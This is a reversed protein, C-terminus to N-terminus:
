PSPSAGTMSSCGGRHRSVLLLGVCTKPAKPNTVGDSNGPPYGDYGDRTIRGSSNLISALRGFCSDDTVTVCGASASGPHLHMRSRTTTFQPELLFWDSHSGRWPRWGRQAAGQERICYEGDPTPIGVTGTVAACNHTRGNKNVYVHSGDYCAVYTPSPAPAPEEEEPQAAPERVVIVVSRHDPRAGPTAGHKYITSDVAVGEDSLVGAAALARACSLNDNFTDDGEESAFGHVEVTKDPTITAAYSRLRAEEGDLFEDCNVNFLYLSNSDVGLEYVDQGGLGTCGAVTGVAAPGCARQVSPAAPAFSAHMGQASGHSAAAQEAAREHRDNCPAVQLGGSLSSNSDGQQITHALEHALLARGVQTGPAYSGSNFVIQQNVTYAL